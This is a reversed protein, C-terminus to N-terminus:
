ESHKRDWMQSNSFLFQLASEAVSNARQINLTKTEQGHLLASMACYHGVEVSATSTM